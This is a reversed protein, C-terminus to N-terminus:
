AEWRPGARLEHVSEDQSRDQHKVSQNPKGSLTERGASRKQLDHQFGAREAKLAALQNYINICADQCPVQALTTQCSLTLIVTAISAILTSLAIRKGFTGKKSM